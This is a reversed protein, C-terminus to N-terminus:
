HDLINMFNKLSYEINGYGVPDVPGITPKSPCQPIIIEGVVHLLFLSVVHLSIVFKLVLPMAAPNLGSGM